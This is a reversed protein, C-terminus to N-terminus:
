AIGDAKSPRAAAPAGSVGATQALVVGGLAVAGGLAQVLTLPENFALWAALAAVVPQVLVVVSALPAPLRGLAWAISGQGAVHMVGLGALAAWGVASAPWISEGMALACTLLLPAGVLSSWFMLVTASKTQRAKRVALIYSAYWVATLASLVDGLRPDVGMGGKALAMTASGGIGLVMGVIFVPRPTQRFLVWAAATVLIPTLNALVTANAISTFRIGYHWFVLDGAFLVGALVAIWSPALRTEPKGRARGGLAMAALIPLALTVRWFASGAPGVHDARALRVLVPGFGIMGAGFILVWLARRDSTPQM